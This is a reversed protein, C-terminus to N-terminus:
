KSLDIKKKIIIIKIVVRTLVINIHPLFCPLLSVLQLLQVIVTVSASPNDPLEGETRSITDMVVNYEHIKDKHHQFERKLSLLEEPSFKGSSKAQCPFLWLWM